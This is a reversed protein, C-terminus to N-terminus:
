LWHVCVFHNTDHLQHFTIWLILPFFLSFIPCSISPGYQQSAFSANVPQFFRPSRLLNVIHLMKVIFFTNRKPFLLVPLMKNQNCKVMITASGSFMPARVFSDHVMFDIERQSAASSGSEVKNEYRSSWENYEKNFSSVKEMWPDTSVYSVPTIACQKSHFYKVINWWLKM